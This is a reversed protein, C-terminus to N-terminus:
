IIGGYYKISNRLCSVFGDKNTSYSITDDKNKNFKFSEIDSLVLKCNENILMLKKDFVLNLQAVSKDFDEIEYREITLGQQYMGTLSTSASCDIAFTRGGLFKKLEILGEEISAKVRKEKIVYLYTTTGYKVGIECMKWIDGEKNFFFTTLDCTPIEKVLNKDNFSRGYVLYRKDIFVFLVLMSFADVIDDHEVFPFSLLREKLNQLNENLIYQKSQEDYKNKVFVINNMYLSASELRQMKSNAGPNYAKMGAVTDQLAQLIPAGNAKDEIVQIIGPYAEDLHEVYKVSKVFALRKELCDVIYLTGRVKYALCSGLFDSTDKDKVPFDHSAYIIDAVDISPIENLPKEIVMNEKIITLESNEPEQLYQAKWTHETIRAKLTEYNGFQEPFLYEGKDYTLIDGSVPCILYTKKKFQAPLTIFSYASSMKADKQIRGVIDNIAIRQMINIIVHKTPDNIRSPLVETYTTWSSEMEQKDRIATSVNTLDDIILVDAGFGTISNKPVSYMEGNRTDKLSYATNQVLSIEPFFFKFKESNLLKQRKSNMTGALGQTHSVSAVKIPANIFLWCPLLINFINSKGHRPPCSVSLLHKDERVDILEENEKVKPIKVKVEKYDVWYRCSYQFVECFYKILKGTKLPHSDIESWFECCFSYADKKFLERYLKRELESLEKYNKIM